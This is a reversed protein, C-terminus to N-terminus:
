NRRDRVALFAKALKGVTPWDIEQKELHATANALTRARSEAVPDVSEAIAAALENIHELPSM